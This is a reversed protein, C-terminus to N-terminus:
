KDIEVNSFEVKRVLSPGEYGLVRTPVHTAESIEVVERSLGESLTPAAPTLVLAATPNGDVVDGSLEAIAGPAQETHALIAGFSLEDISAGRISTVLPDHLDLTKKFVGALGSGRQGVVTEGGQWHLTAGANPGSRAHLTVSSPKRFTYDFVMTQTQDGKREFVSITARYSNIRSWADAFADLKQMAARAAVPAEAKASSPALLAALLVFGSCVAGLGPFLSPSRRTRM